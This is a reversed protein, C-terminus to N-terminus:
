VDKIAVCRGSVSLNSSHCSIDKGVSIRFADIRMQDGEAWVWVKVSIMMDIKGNIPTEVPDGAENYGILSSRETTFDTVEGILQGSIDDYLKDGEEINEMLKEPAKEVRITYIIEKDGGSIIGPNARFINAAIMAAVGIVIIILLVDIANLAHKKEKNNQSM